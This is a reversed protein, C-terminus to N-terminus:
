AVVDLSDANSAGERINLLEWDKAKLEAIVVDAPKNIWQSGLDIAIINQDDLYLVAGVSRRVNFSECDLRYEAGIQPVCQPRFAKSFSLRQYDSTHVDLWWECGNGQEVTPRFQVLM